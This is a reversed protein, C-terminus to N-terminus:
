VPSTAATTWNRRATNKGEIERKFDAALTWCHSKMLLSWEDKVRSTGTACDLDGGLLGDTVRVDTLCTNGSNAVEISYAITDGKRTKGDSSAM